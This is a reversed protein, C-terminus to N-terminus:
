SKALKRRRRKSRGPGFRLLRDMWFLSTSNSVAETVRKRVTAAARQFTEDWEVGDITAQLCGDLSNVEVDIAAAARRNAVNMVLAEFRKPHKRWFREILVEREYDRGETTGSALMEDSSLADFREALWVAVGARQDALTKLLKSRQRHTLHQLDDLMLLTRTSVPDVTLSCLARVCCVCRRLRIMALCHDARSDESTTSRMVCSPKTISLGILCIKDM